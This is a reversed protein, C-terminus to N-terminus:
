KCWGFCWYGSSKQAHGNCDVHTTETSMSAITTAGAQKEERVKDFIVTFGDASSPNSVDWDGFKPVISGRKIKKNDDEIGNTRSRRASKSIFSSSSSSWSQHLPSHSNKYNSSGSGRSAMRRHNGSTKQDEHRHNAERKIHVEDKLKTAESYSATAPSQALSMNASFAEPNDYPDHPNIMERETRSGKRVDDFCQSYPFTRDWNGFKPILTNESM